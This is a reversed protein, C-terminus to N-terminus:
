GGGVFNVIELTDEACLIVDKYTGKPVIDGNREVAILTINYNQANLFDFLTQSKELSIVTGNVKL